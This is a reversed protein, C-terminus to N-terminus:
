GAKTDMGLDVFSARPQCAHSGGMDVGIAEAIVNAGVEHGISEHSCETNRARKM